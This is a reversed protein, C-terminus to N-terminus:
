QKLLIQYLHNPTLRSTMYGVSLHSYNHLIWVSSRRTKLTLPGILLRKASCNDQKYFSFGSHALFMKKIIIFITHLFYWISKSRTSRAFILSYWRLKVSWLNQPLGDPEKMIWFWSKSHSKISSFVRSVGESLCITLYSFDWVSQHYWVEINTTTIWLTGYLSTGCRSTIDPSWHQNNQNVFYWIPFDWM